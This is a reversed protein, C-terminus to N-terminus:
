LEFPCAVKLTRAKETNRESIIIQGKEIRIKDVGEFDEPMKVQFLLYSKSVQEGAEIWSYMPKGMFTVAKETLLKYPQGLGCTGFELGQAYPKGDKKYHWVNLWPYDATKWIYGVLQGTSPSTATIWGYDESDPILHTTVYGRDDTVTRLYVPGDVLKGKPWFFSEENLRNYPTRQDFGPGANCDILTSNELFPPGLTPHQVMNWIRGLDSLNTVIEEMKMVASKASLSINRTVEMREKPLLCSAKAYSYGKTETPTSIVDWTRTNVEGNHPIGKKQEAESAAGWRGICLFHGQFIFNSPRNPAPMEEPKLKWSFPNVPTADSTFEKLSSGELNFVVRGGKTELKLEKSQGFILSPFFLGFALFICNRIM